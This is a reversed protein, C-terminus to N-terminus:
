LFPERARSRTRSERLVAEVGVGDRSAGVAGDATADSGLETHSDKLAAAREVGGSPWFSSFSFASM